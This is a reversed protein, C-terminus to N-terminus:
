PCPGTGAVTLSISRSPDRDAIEVDDLEVLGEGRLREGHKAIESQGVVGVMDIRIAARDRDAMREAHRARPERQGGRDFHAGRRGAASAVIHMPTPCPM